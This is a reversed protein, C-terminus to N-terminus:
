PCFKNLWKLQDRRSWFCKDPEFLLEKINPSSKTFGCRKLTSGGIEPHYFTWLNSFICRVGGSMEQRILPGGYTKPSLWTINPKTTAYTFEFSM